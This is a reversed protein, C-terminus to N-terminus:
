SKPCSALAQPQLAVPVQAMVIQRCLQAQLSKLGTGQGSTTPNACAGALAHALTSGAPAPLGSGSGIGQTQQKCQATVYALAGRRAAAPLQHEAAKWNTNCEATLLAKDHASILRQGAVLDKCLSIERAQEAAASLVTVGPAVQVSSPATTKGIASSVGASLAFAGGVGVVAALLGSLLSGASVGTIGRAAFVGWILGAIVFCGGFVGSFIKGSSSSAHLLLQGHNGFALAIFPVGIAVFLLPIMLRGVSSALVAGLGAVVLGAMLMLMWWGIGKGCTPVPGYNRSYGTTSCSGHAFGHFIGLCLM